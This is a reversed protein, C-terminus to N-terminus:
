PSSGMSLTSSCALGSSIPRDGNASLVMSSRTRAVMLACGPATSNSSAGPECAALFAGLTILVKSTPMSSRCPWITPAGM